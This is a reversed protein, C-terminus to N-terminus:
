ERSHEALDFSFVGDANRPRKLVEPHRLTRVTDYYGARWHDEMSQCSFEYDKSYGEYDKARYILQILNRVKRESFRRLVETEPQGSIGAAVQRATVVALQALIADRHFSQVCRAHPEFVHDGKAAHQRGGHQASVQRAVAM